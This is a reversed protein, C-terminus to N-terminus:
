MKNGCKPCFATASLHGCKSCNKPYYLEITGNSLDWNASGGGGGATSWRTRQTGQWSAGSGGTGGPFAPGTVGTVITTSQATIEKKKKELDSIHTDLKKIKERAAETDDSLGEKEKKFEDILKQVEDTQQKTYTDLQELKGSLAIEYNKLAKEFLDRQERSQRWIAITTGIALFTLLFSLVSVLIGYPNSALSLNQNTRDLIENTKNLLNLYTELPVTPQM